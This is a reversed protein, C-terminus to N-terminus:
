NKALWRDRDQRKAETGARAVYALSTTALVESAEPPSRSNAGDKARKDAQENGAVDKHGPTCRFETTWGADLIAKEARDQPRDVPAAIAVPIPISILVPVAIQIAIDITIPITIETAVAIHIAMPIAIAIAIDISIPITVATTVPIHIAMPIANDMTIPITVATAVAIHLAM